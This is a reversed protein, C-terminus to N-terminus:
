GAGAATGDVVARGHVLANLAPPIDVIPLVYDVVGSKVAAEPMGWHLSTAQDQAIVIGGHAKVTQVGDTGDSGTGSLVVAVLRGGFATAASELLPNASSQLFRIRRGDVYAFCRKATVTLHLDSRAIYVVGAEVRDGAVAMRVPLPTCRAFLDVLGNHSRPTRHLVILIAAPLDRPLASLITLLPQVGGASAAIAIVWPDASANSLDHTDANEAM